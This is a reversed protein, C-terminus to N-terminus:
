EYDCGKSNNNLRFSIAIGTFYFWDNELDDGRQEDKNHSYTPDSM